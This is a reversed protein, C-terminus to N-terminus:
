QRPRHSAAPSIYFSVGGSFTTGAGNEDLTAITRGLSGFVSMSPRLAYALGGTVETRDRTLGTLADVSTWSHSFSASLGVRPAVQMGAGAGAFWVARSFWGASAYFRRGSRDVEVSVPLGFRTRTEGSALSQMVGTGLVELTPAVAVKLGYEDNAYAAYKGSFYTTGLGGVVGSADNAVVRPLSAAFQFRNTLGIAVNVVPVDTEGIGNGQWRTMSLDVSMAGSAMLDADDIWALPMAGIGSAAGSAIPLPSRSPPSAHGHAQNSKGQAFLRGPLFVALAAVLVAGARSPSAARGM